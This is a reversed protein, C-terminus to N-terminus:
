PGEQWSRSPGPAAVSCPGVHGTVKHVSFSADATFDGGGGWEVELGGGLSEPLLVVRPATHVLATPHPLGGTQLAGGGAHAVCRNSAASGTRHVSSSRQETRARFAAASVLSAGLAPEGGRVRARPHGHASSPPRAADARPTETNLRPLQAAGTTSAAVGGVDGCHTSGICPHPRCPCVDGRRRTALIAGIRQARPLPHRSTPMGAEAEAETGKAGLHNTPAKVEAAHRWESRKKGTQWPVEQGKEAEISTDRCRHIIIVLGRVMRQDVGHCGRCDFAVNQLFGICCRLPPPTLQSCLVHREVKGGYRDGVTVERHHM